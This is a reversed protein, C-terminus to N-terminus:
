FRFGVNGTVIVGNLDLYREASTSYPTAVPSPASLVLYRAEAGIFFAKSLNLNVGGGGFFGARISTKELNGVESKISYGGVGVALYPELISIPLGLRGTVELPFVGFTTDVNGTKGKTEFYGVAAELSFYRNLYYGFALEGSFGTGANENGLDSSQPIFGGIKLVGYNTKPTEQAWLIAPVTVTIFAMTFVLVKIRSKMRREKRTRELKPWKDNAAAKKEEKKNKALRGASSSV